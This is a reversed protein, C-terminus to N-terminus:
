YLRREPVNKGLFKDIIDENDEQLKQKLKEREQNEAEQKMEREIDELQKEVKQKELEKGEELKENLDITSNSSNFINNALKILESRLCISFIIVGILIVVMLVVILIQLNKKM